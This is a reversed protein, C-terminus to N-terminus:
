KKDRQLDLILRMIEKQGDSIKELKDFIRIIRNSNTNVKNELVELKTHLQILSTVGSIIVASLVPIFIKEITTAEIKM